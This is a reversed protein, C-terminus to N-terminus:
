LDLFARIKEAMLEPIVEFLGFGCDPLDIRPAGALAPLARLSTDWLDDRPRIFLIPARVHQL